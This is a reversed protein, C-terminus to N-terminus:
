IYDVYVVGIQTCLQLSKNFTIKIQHETPFQLLLIPRNVHLIHLIALYFALAKRQLNTICQLYWLHFQQEREIFHICVLRYYIYVYAQM